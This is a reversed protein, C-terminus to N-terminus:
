LIINHKEKHIHSELSLVIFDLPHFHIILICTEVDYTSENCRANISLVQFM